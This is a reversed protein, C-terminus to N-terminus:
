ITNGALYESPIFGSLMGIALNTEAIAAASIM